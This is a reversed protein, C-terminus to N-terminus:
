VYSVFTQIFDNQSFFIKKNSHGQLIIVFVFYM